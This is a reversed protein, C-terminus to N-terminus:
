KDKGKKDTITKEEKKGSSTSSKDKDIGKSNNKQRIEKLKGEAEIVLVDNGSQFVDIAVARGTSDLMRIDETLKFTKEVQKGLDNKMRVTITGNKSDVKSITAQKAKKNDTTSKDKKAEAAIVSAVSIALVTVVCSFVRVM